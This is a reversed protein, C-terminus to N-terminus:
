LKKFYALFESNGDGGKIPSDIASVLELGQEAAAKRLKAVIFDICGGTLLKKKVVGKKTLSLRDLEFQPKILTVMSGGRELIASVAPYILSQSIFSVDMAAFSIPHEFDKKLLFRANTKERNIVRRDSVLSKDLQSFGCDVAYVASAGSQLMCDTFGGASAGIDLCVLGTLDVFFAALAASLKYGGRSVFSTVPMNVSLASDEPIDESPKKVGGGQYSVRGEKILAAAHSRSKALGNKVVLLDARM